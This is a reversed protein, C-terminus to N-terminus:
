TISFGRGFTPLDQFSSLRQRKTRNLGWDTRESANCKRKRPLMCFGRRFTKPASISARIACNFLDNKTLSSEACHHRHLSHLKLLFSIELTHRLGHLFKRGNDLLQGWMNHAGDHFRCKADSQISDVCVSVGTPSPHQLALPRSFASHLLCASDELINACM